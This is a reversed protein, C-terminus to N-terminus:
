NNKIEDNRSNNDLLQVAELDVRKKELEIRSENYSDASKATYWKIEKEFAAKEKELQLREADLRQVEQQLKQAEATAQKLQQDLQQVQQSLQGLQNNEQKKKELSNTVDIKLRTLGKAGAIQLVIDPDVVGLKAFEMTLQKIIEQERIIESSDTVHIDYDTFTFHEPLATFVKNLREGLILSGTIGNKFTIKATNLLDILMERTMLDMLQYYQKTIFSSNRVGVQVNTVADRAEIGGLRERFVGTISSCTEEIRQIALDIAQITQLKITDDYGGFATNLMQGEQSSDYLGLGSKKYAKFKMLRETVNQGLFKPLHAVDVWDGVAGSEAIVNDRYFHLCDYKDQLNATDLILSTPDGNRDSYFIGNITLTCRKPDDMSRVVSESKGTAIYINTGIRVGEYRNVIYEGSEREAKLWEVTYVPYMRYYKSSNREFPLLPTIEFGGLIGDSVVNGVVSDYSRLYTVTSDDFGLEDLNDLNDLDDSTLLDGYTGLIQQKTLYERIVARTSDKLYPSEPNRDIFTNIPNLIKLDVNTKSPTQATKYYATGSILLDTLLIKRKNTFDINKAQMMYDVINQGAMEYESIFNNELNEKIKEIEAQIQADDTAQKGYISAYLSNKLHDNLKKIIASSIALQKDRHINSLTDSDKCSIKPSVPTSLYEGILVDIHKRTLPIFEVATPTGIGYNEELHRFQEPDRKGHYYRYAKIIQTKEYVLENITKDINTIIYNEDEKSQKAM